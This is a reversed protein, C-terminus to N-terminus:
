GVQDPNDQANAHAKLELLNLAATIKNVCKKRSQRIDDDSGAEVSDLKLLLKTHIEELYKYDYDSKRGAFNNVSIRLEEVQGAVSNIIEFVCEKGNINRANSNEMPQEHGDPPPKLGASGSVRDSSMPVVTSKDGAKRCKTDSSVLVNTAHKPSCTLIPEHFQKTQNSCASLQSTSIHTPTERGAMSHQGSDTIKKSGAQAIKGHHEKKSPQSFQETYHNSNNASSNMTYPATDMSKNPKSFGPQCQPQSTESNVHHIPLEVAGGQNFPGCYSSEPGAFYQQPFIFESEGPM